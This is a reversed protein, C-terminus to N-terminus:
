AARPPEDDGLWAQAMRYFADEMSGAKIEVFSKELAAEITPWHEEPLNLSLYLKGPEPPNHDMPIFPVSYQAAESESVWYHSNIHREANQGVPVLCICDAQTGLAVHQVYDGAPIYSHHLPRDIIITSPRLKGQPVRYVLLQPILKIDM